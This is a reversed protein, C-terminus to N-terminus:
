FAKSSLCLKLYLRPPPQSQIKQKQQAFHNFVEKSLSCCKYRMKTNSPAQKGPSPLSPKIYLLRQFLLFGWPERAERQGKAGPWSVPRPPVVYPLHHELPCLPVPSHAQVVSPPPLKVRLGRGRPRGVQLSPVAQTSDTCPWKGLTAVRACMRPVHRNHHQQSTCATSSSPCQPIPVAAWPWTILKWQHQQGEQTEAQTM